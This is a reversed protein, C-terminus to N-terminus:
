AVLYALGLVALGLLSALVTVLTIRNARELGCLEGDAVDLQRAAARIRLEGIGRFLCGLLTAVGFFALAPAM